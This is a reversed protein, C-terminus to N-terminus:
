DSHVATTARKVLAPPLLRAAGSGTQGALRAILVNGAANGVQPSMNDVTTLSVRRIRAIASDDYGVVSLAEPVRLGLDDAAALVGVACLDNAAFVATPRRHMTLLETAARYGAEETWDGDITVPSLRAATMVSEYGVRRLRGVEWPGVIHAIRTHGLELLHTTAIRGGIVDDNAVVDFGSLTPERTGAIVLPCTGRLEAAQTAIPGAVSGVLVLGDMKLNILTQAAAPETRGDAIVMQLGHQHLVPRLTNLLAVFWPNSLDAVIVGVARTRQEALSRAIPDPRYDLESMADLVARRRRDSVKPSGQLVLSVLSKSM